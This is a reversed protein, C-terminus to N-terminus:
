PPGFGAAAFVVRGRPGTVLDIFQQAAPPDVANQLEAIPYTNVVARSEPFPISSVENGARTADTLYVVGADAQASTIKGLVDTVASEESVPNLRVGTVRELQETAAGCPVQPACVVVQTGPKALDAFSAIGRTNGPPTVMTLTNSAFNVPEGSILGADAAKTMSRTDASAFVDAPAGQILQTLLDSSGAFNFTVKTGPHDKEFHSGLETFAPQLSAAAFVILEDPQRSSCGAQLVVVSVLCLALGVTSRM